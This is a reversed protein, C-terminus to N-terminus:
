KVPFSNGALFLAYLALFFFIILYDVLVNLRREGRPASHEIKEGNSTSM